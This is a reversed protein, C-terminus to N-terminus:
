ETDDSDTDAKAPKNTDDTKAPKDAEARKAPKAFGNTLNKTFDAVASGLQDGFSKGSQARHRGGAPATETLDDPTDTISDEIEEALVPEDDSETVTPEDVAGDPETAVDVSSDTDAEVPAAESTLTTLTALRTSSVSRPVEDIPALGSRDSSSDSPALPSGSGDWGIAKAIAKNMDILSGILGPGQGNALNFRILPLGLVDRDYDMDLANFISGGPSLLGGFAIGVKTGEPFTVGISPGLAAALATLDVHVGGNLFADTMEAPTNLLTLLARGVDPTATALSSVISQLNSGLVVVPGVLPGVSGLLVGSIPSAAFELLAQGTPSIEFLLDVLPIQQILPLANYLFEHQADLTDNSPTFPAAFGRGFNAVIQQVIAAVDPLEGLYALQNAISQQTVPFPADFYSNALGTARQGAKDFIVSWDADAALEVTPEVVDPLAPTVPTIAIVGASVIALGTVAVAGLGAQM